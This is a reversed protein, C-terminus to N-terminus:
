SVSKKRKARAEAKKKPTWRSPKPNQKERLYNLVHFSRLEGSHYTRVFNIGSKRRLHRAPVYVLDGTLGAKDYYSEANYTRLDEYKKLLMVFPVSKSDAEAKIRAIVTRFKVWVKQKCSDSRGKACQAFGKKMSRYAPLKSIEKWNM